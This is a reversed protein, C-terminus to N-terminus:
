LVSRSVEFSKGKICTTAKLYTKCASPSDWNWSGQSAQSRRRHAPPCWGTASTQTPNWEERGRLCTCSTWGELYGFASQPIQHTLQVSRCKYSMCIGQAQAHTHIHWLWLQWWVMCMRLNPSHATKRYLRISERLADQARLNFPVGQVKVYEGDIFPDNPCQTTNNHVVILKQLKAM